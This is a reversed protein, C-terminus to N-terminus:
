PSEDRRSARFGQIATPRQFKSVERTARDADITIMM